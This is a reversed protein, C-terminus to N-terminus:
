RIGDNYGKITNIIEKMKLIDKKGKKEEISSNIDVGFPNLKLIHHVNQISVGGAVIINKGTRISKKVLERDIPIGTGGFQDKSYTDVLITNCNNEEILSISTEDKIRIVKWYPLNLEDCYEETEDGHLQVIDLECFEYIRQVEAIPENVFVGVRLNNSKCGESIIKRVETENIYRKSQKYFIFGTYDAGSSVANNYDSINTIGCIKIKVM